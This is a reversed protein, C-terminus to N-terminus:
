YIGASHAWEPIGVRRGALDSPGAIGARPAVYFSSQRFVRSPFVPIARFPPAGTGVLSVYKGMSFEAIDWEAFSVMRFFIEEVPLENTLLTIGEARVRGRVVDSVHDYYSMALSLRIDSMVRIEKAPAGGCKAIGQDDVEASPHQRGQTASAAIAPFCLYGVIGCRVRSQQHLPADTGDAPPRVQGAGPVSDSQPRAASGSNRRAGPRRPM